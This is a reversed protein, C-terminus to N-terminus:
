PAAAVCGPNFAGATRSRPVATGYEVNMLDLDLVDFLPGDHLLRLLEAIALCAAAAGVFPAGVARGALTTVGCRDAGERLMRQYAPRGDTTPEPAPDDRWLERAPRPGPLTHLRLTRFDRYGRGLGAEVVYPFGPAELARRGLANDLGCLAVVPEAEQRRFGDDFLREHIRAGFGRRECWDAMARTKMRGLEGRGSLLSTSETSPTVVDVDQLVLEVGSPAPYPLLGLAWLYAQGLHGLGILWLRSPLLRLAAAGDSVETWARGFEPKWLSFGVSRRGAMAGEGRVHLFAENVALASALFPALPMASREGTRDVDTGAPVIGGSWGFFGARVDFAERRARPPGGIAVTPTDTPMADVPVGGLATVAERLTGGLPLPVALPVDLTGSVLAGGLFVRRALAVGSLLAAQHARSAADDADLMFGLRYTQFIAEAEELSKAAGSDLAEKVLRHLGDPNITPRM